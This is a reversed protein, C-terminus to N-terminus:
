ATPSFLAPRPWAPAPRTPLLQDAIRHRRRAGVCVVGANTPCCAPASRKRGREGRVLEPLVSRDQARKSRRPPSADSVLGTRRAQHEHAALTRLSPGFARAVPASAFARTDDFSPVSAAPGRRSTDPDEYFESRRDRRGRGSGDAANQTTSPGDSVPPVATFFTGAGPTTVVRCADSIGSGAFIWSANPSSTPAALSPSSAKLTPTPKATTCSSM